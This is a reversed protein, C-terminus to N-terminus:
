RLAAAEQLFNTADIRSRVDQAVASWAPTEDANFAITGTLVHVRRGLLSVEASWAASDAHEDYKAEYRYELGTSKQVRADQFSPM